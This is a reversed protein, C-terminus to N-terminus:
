AIRLQLVGAFVQNAEIVVDGVFQMEKPAGHLIFRRLIEGLTKEGAFVKRAHGSGRYVSGSLVHNTIKGPGDGRTHHVFHLKGISLPRDRGLKNWAGDCVLRRDRASEGSRFLM